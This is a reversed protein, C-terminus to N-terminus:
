IMYSPYGAKDHKTHMVINWLAKESIGEGYNDPDALWEFLLGCPTWENCNLSKLDYNNDGMKKGHWGYTLADFITKQITNTLMTPAEEPQKLASADELVAETALVPNDILWTKVEQEEEESM